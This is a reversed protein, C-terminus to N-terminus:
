CCVSHLERHMLNGIGVDNKGVCIMCGAEEFVYDRRWVNEYAVISLIIVRYRRRIKFLVVHEKVIRFKSILEDNAFKTGNGRPRGKDHPRGVMANAAHGGIGEM